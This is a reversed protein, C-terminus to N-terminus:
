KIVNFLDDKNSNKEFAFLFSYSLTKTRFTKYKSNSSHLIVNFTPALLM